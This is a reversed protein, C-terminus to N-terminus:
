LPRKERGPFFVKVSAPVTSVATTTSTLSTGISRGLFLLPRPVAPFLLAVRQFQLEQHMWDRALDKADNRAAPRCMIKSEQPLRLGGDMRFGFEEGVGAILANLVLMGVGAGRLLGAFEVWQGIILPRVVASERPHSQRHLVHDPPELDEPDQLFRVAVSPAAEVEPGTENRCEAVADGNLVSKRM